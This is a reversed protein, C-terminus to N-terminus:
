SLLRSRAESFLLGLVVLAGGIGLLVAVDVGRVVLAIVLTVIAFSALVAGYGTGSGGRLTSGGILAAALAELLLNTSPLPQAEGLFGASIVGALAALAGSCVFAAVLVASVRAPREADGALADLPGPALTLLLVVVVAAVITLVLAIAAIQDPNASGLAARIPQASARNALAEAVATTGVTAVVAATRSLSGLLGNLLGAVAGAAIAVVFGPLLVQGGVGMQAAVLGAAAAVAAVSLDLRGARLVLTLGLSLLAVFSGDAIVSSAAEGTAGSGAFVLIAVLLFAASAVASVIDSLRFARSSQV